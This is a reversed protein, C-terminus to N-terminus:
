RPGGKEQRIFQSAIDLRMRASKTIGDSKSAEQLAASSILTCTDFDVGGIVGEECFNVVRNVIDDADEVARDVTRQTVGYETAIDTLFRVPSPRSPSHPRLGFQGLGAESAEQMASKHKM